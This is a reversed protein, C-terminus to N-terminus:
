FASQPSITTNPLQLSLELASHSTRSIAGNIKFHNCYKFLYSSTIMYDVVSHGRATNFTYAASNAGHNGNHVLLNNAELFTIM